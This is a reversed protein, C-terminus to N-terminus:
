KGSAVSRLSPHDALERHRDLSHRVKEFHDTSFGLAESAQVPGIVRRDLASMVASTYRGGVESLRTAIYSGGSSSRRKPRAKVAWAHRRYFGEPAVGLEELRLALARQSVKLRSATYRITSDEWEFPDNPWSPLLLRLAEVPMLFAAAFRNCFAEVPHKPNQDSVGPQRILIHAYEHLLTFVRARINDETKNIVIAPPNGDDFLSFGRCDGLNFKQLYIAIGINELVARWRRFEEGSRWALQDEVEVGLRQREKEGQLWPDDSQYYVPLNPRLFEDDEESLDRLTKQLARVHSLATRFEFSHVAGSGDLTRYDKPMPPEPPPTMRFLTAQPLKYGNAFREFTGLSPLREGSEYAQLEDVSMGLHAAAEDPMLGRYERAWVLVKKSVPIDVM